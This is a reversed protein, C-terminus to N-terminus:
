DPGDVASHIDEIWRRVSDMSIPVRILRVMSILALGINSAALFGHLKRRTKPDCAFLECSSTMPLVRLSLDLVVKNDPRFLVFAAFSVLAMSVSIHDVAQTVGNVALVPALPGLVVRIQQNRRGKFRYLQPLSLLVVLQCGREPSVLRHLCAAILVGCVLAKLCTLPNQSYYSAAKRLALSSFLDSLEFQRAYFVILLHTVSAVFSFETPLLLLSPLSMQKHNRGIFIWPAYNVDAPLSTPYPFTSDEASHVKHESYFSIRTERFFELNM